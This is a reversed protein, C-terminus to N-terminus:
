TSMVQFVLAEDLTLENDMSYRAVSGRYHHQCLALVRGYRVVWVEADHHAEIQGSSFFVCRTLDKM